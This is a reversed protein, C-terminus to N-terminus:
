VIKFQPIVAGNGRDEFWVEVPAGVHVRERESMPLNSVM